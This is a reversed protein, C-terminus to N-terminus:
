LKIAEKLVRERIRRHLDEVTVLDVQRGLLAQLEMLLGGGGWEANELGDVLFDIDSDPGAEGRVVSGFVRVNTVGHKAALQLIEARKETLVQLGLMEM